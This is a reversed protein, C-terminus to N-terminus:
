RQSLHTLKSSLDIDSPKPLGVQPGNQDLPNWTCCPAFSYELHSALVKVKIKQRKRYIGIKGIM